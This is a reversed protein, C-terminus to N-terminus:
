KEKTVKIKAALESLRQRETKTFAVFDAVSGGAPEIGAKILKDKVEDSNLAAQLAANVREILAPPTGKPAYLGAWHGIQVAPYGQEATTPISPYISIRKSYTTAIAKLLGAKIKPVVVISAESTASVNNALVANVSDGGSRFPILNFSVGTAEKIMEAVFEPTSGNGATSWTAKGDQAKAWAIFEKMNSAPVSPHVVITSPAVAIMGVPILDDDKYPLDKLLLSNTITSAAGVLFTYGDPAAHAVYATGIVAGAGPHNEVIVTQHLYKSVGDATFRAILDNAGGPGFGVIFRIPHDPWEARAAPAAFASVLVCAAVIAFRRIM